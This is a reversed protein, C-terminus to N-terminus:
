VKRTMGSHAHVARNRKPARAQKRRSVMIALRGALRDIALIIASVIIALACVSGIMIGIIGPTPIVM